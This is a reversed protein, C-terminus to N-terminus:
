NKLNDTLYRKQKKLGRNKIFEKKGAAVRSNTDEEFFSHIDNILSQKKEKTIKKKRRVFPLKHLLKYKRLREENHIIQGAFHRKEKKTMTKYVDQVNQSISESFLLQKKVEEKKEPRIVTLVEEIRKEVCDHEPQGINIQKRFADKERKLKNIEDKLKKVTKSHTYRLRRLIASNFKLLRVNKISPTSSPGPEALMLPDSSPPDPNVNTKLESEPPLNEILIKHIENKEEKKKKEKRALYRTRENEKHISYLEPDNKIKKYRERKRLRDKALKEERTLKKSTKAM